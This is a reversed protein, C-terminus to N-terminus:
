SVRCGEGGDGSDDDDDDGGEEAGSESGGVGGGAVVAGGGRAAARRRGFLLRLLEPSVPLVDREPGRARAERNREIVRLAEAPVPRREPATPAWLNITYDNGSPNQAPPTKPTTNAPPTQFSIM